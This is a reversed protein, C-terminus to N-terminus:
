TSADVLERTMKFNLYNVDEGRAQGQKEGSYIVYGERIRGSLKRFLRINKSFSANFSSAAKIEVPIIAGNGVGKPKEMILDIELGNQNRFYYLGGSEARNCRTKLAEAVVMNEFLNGVQPDRFVQRSNEIGLLYSALGVDTFYLKSAKVIRRDFNNYYAPLRFIVYGAELVSTWATLTTQSVGIDGALSNLNIIQGVRGALMRTFREFAAANDLNILRRVDRDVYDAYWNRHLAKVDAGRKYVCPMFGRYIYEDRGLKAKAGSLEGFSLPLLTVAAAFRFAPRAAGARQPLPQHSSLLVFRRLHKGDAAARQLHIMIEPARRFEDIVLNGTYYRFFDRPCKRAFERIEPEELNVYAHRSFTAQALSTKGAGRPGTVLLTRYKSGMALLRRAIERRLM